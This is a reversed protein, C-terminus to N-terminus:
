YSRQRKKPPPLNRTAEHLWPLAGQTASWNELNALVYLIAEERSGIGYMEPVRRPIRQAGLLLDPVFANSTWAAKLAEKAESSPGHRRFALLTRTYAWDALDDGDYSQILEELTDHDRVALLWGALIYRLGQNDGPNLRLMDQLHAVADAREGQRWLCQALAARARMYPRTELLGWFHGVDEEFASAGLAREGASVAAEYYRRQEMLNKAAEEALLVYADACLDSIELARKALATRERKTGAEWAGYMVEQAQSLPDGDTATDDAADGSFLDRTFRAMIGELARRDPVPPLPQQDATPASSARKNSAPPTPKKNKRRHKSVPM